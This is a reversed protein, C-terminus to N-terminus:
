VRARYGPTRAPGPHPSRGPLGGTAASRRGARAQPMKIAVPATSSTTRPSTSGVSAERASHGLVRYRGISVPDNAAARPWPTRHGCSETELGRIMQHAPPSGPGPRPLGGQGDGGAEKPDLGRLRLRSARCWRSGRGPINTWPMGGTEKGATQPSARWTRRVAQVVRSMSMSSWANASM